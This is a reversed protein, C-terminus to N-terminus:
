SALLRRYAMRLAAFVISLCVTPLAVPTHKWTLLLRSRTLHWLARATLTNSSFGTTGGERHYVVADPAYSFDFKGAARYAWDQEECYLFYREDMLGVYEVFARSALISAGYIFNIRQEVEDPNELMAISIDEKYGDLVSLATWRNTFGGGRCQVTKDDMYRILSGCLGPRQQAFLRNRMAGLANKDVITDNNLIWVAEAGWLMALRIGSNNGAAYGRNASNRILIVRASVIAPSPSDGDIEALPLPKPFSSPVGFEPLIFELNGAAWHRFWRLSDNPSANDVIFIRELPQASALVSEVCALTYQWTNYNLIVVSVGPADSYDSV